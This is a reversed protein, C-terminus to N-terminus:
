RDRCSICPDLSALIRWFDRIKSGIALTEITNLNPITPVSISIKEVEGSDNLKIFYTDEGRPAETRSVTVGAKIDPIEVNIEGKPLSKLCQEIIEVSGMIEELRILTRTETDGEFKVQSEFDINDYGAYPQKKRIDLDIGSARTVPGVACFLRAEEKTLIGVGKTINISRKITKLYNKLRSEMERLKKVTVQLTKREINRRTGGIMNVGYLLRSGILKESLDLVKNRENLFCLSVDHSCLSLIEYLVFLHSQIREIEAIITRIYNAREPIKLNCIREVAQAYAMAHTHSCLGCIREIFFIGEYLRKGEMYHELERFSYGTKVEVKKIKETRENVALSFSVPSILNVDIPGIQIRKM